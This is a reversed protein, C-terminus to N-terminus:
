KVSLLKIIKMYIHTSKYYFLVNGKQLFFIVEVTFVKLSKPKGPEWSVHVKGTNCSAASGWEDQVKLATKSM